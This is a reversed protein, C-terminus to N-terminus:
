CVKISGMAAWTSVMCWYCALEIHLVYPRIHPPSLNLTEMVDGYPCPPASAISRSDAPVNRTYPSDSRADSYLDEASEAVDRLSGFPSPSLTPLYDASGTLLLLFIYMQNLSLYM